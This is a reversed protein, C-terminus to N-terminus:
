PRPGNTDLFLVPRDGYGGAGNRRLLHGFAKATYVPDLELGWASRGLAAAQTGEETPHGYGPGLADRTLVIERELPVAGRPVAAGRRRLLGATRACLRVTRRPDLPLADSVVVGEVQVRPLGALRLGLLLGALTGGTGVACVITGPEPLAGARVQEAIEFAAEVYGLAGVPSSGGAPLVYPMRNRPLIWPLAVATRAPTRTRYVRTASRRLRAFNAAVHEDVPQDVVAVVARLGNATAYRATALGHNTGLAGFTLVGGRGRRRADALTWELKRVKNGGWGGDGYEGEEKVWVPAPGGTALPRVTTPGHGLELRPLTQALAPAWRHLHPTSM